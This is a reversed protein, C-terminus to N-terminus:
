PGKSLEFRGDDGPDIERADIVAEIEIPGYVHPFLEGSGYLDEHRVGAALRDEDIELLVLDERGRFLRNAVGEVRAAESCHIFGEDAFAAPTYRGAQLAAAWRWREALHLITSM